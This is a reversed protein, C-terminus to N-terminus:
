EDSGGYASEIPKGSHECTLDSDEYNIECGVIRWGDNLKDRIARACQLYEARVTDFSLAAGDSTVFYLPYGGPWAYAGARLTARLELTSNIRSYHRSYIARLPKASWNPARTDHMAGDTSSVFLHGPLQLM